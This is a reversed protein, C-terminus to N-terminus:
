SLQAKLPTAPLKKLIHNRPDIEFGASELATVGLLPEVDDPGFIVGTFAVEGLIELEAGGIQFEKKTGDALEFVRTGRPRIGLKTLESGPVM